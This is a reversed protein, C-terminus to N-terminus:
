SPQEELQVIDFLENLTIDLVVCVQALTHRSLNVASGNVLRRITEFSIGTDKSLQRITINREQIIQNLNSHLTYQPM